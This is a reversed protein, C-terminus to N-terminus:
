KSLSLHVVRRTESRLRCFDAPRHGPLWAIREASCVLPWGARARRPLKVNTWFDSLKLSHGGMGLPQFREGPRAARVLLPLELADADLWAQNPDDISAALDEGGSVACLEVELRWGNLLDLRGPLPVTASTEAMVQPWEEGSPENGWEALLLREGEIFLRLGGTLDIQLSQPPDSFFDLARQVALYDIDRLAPRLRGIARRLISRQMGPALSRVEPLSLAVYGSGEQLCCSPWVQHAINDLVAYDGALTQAMRWLAEKMRPNYQELYPILEHRLRNRHFAVDLNSADFVYPLEHEQCYRLTECRWVGLLPRALPIDTDWAAIRSTYAMGKLGSLGAGRLLHMLVTEVQDDATHAVAVAQAAHQRAQEFLFRYRTERAAEEISLKNAKAFAAVDRRGLLFPLGRSEAIEQVRSADRGSEPRLCHDFHAVMVAYGARALLDLLCLSDAGGSVGVLTPREKELGCQSKLIGAFSGINM